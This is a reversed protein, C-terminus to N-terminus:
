KDLRFGQRLIAALVDPFYIHSYYSATNNGWDEGDARQQQRWHESLTQNYQEIAPAIREEHYFEEHCFSSLPLRPKQPAPKDVYGLTLGVVPFTLAPLKLLDTVAQPNARIGGIPVIGLGQARAAAMMAELAIGADTAGSVISEVSLHAVQEKGAERIAMASKHM